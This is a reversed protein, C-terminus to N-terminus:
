LSLTLTRRLGKRLVEATVARGPPTHRIVRAFDKADTVVVGDVQIVVDGAELGARAAPSGAAIRHVVVGGRLWSLGAEDPRLDRVTAGSEQGPGELLMAQVRYDRRADAPDAMPRITPTQAQLTAVALSVTLVCATATTRGM